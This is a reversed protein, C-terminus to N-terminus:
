KFVGLASFAYTPASSGTVATKIRIQSGLPRDYSKINAGMTGDTSQLPDHWVVVSLQPAGFNDGAKLLTTETTLQYGAPLIVNSPLGIDIENGTPVILGGLEHANYNRTLSVIQTGTTPLNLLTNTGDDLVLHVQRTDATADTVFAFRVSKLLWITNAPVTESIESGAAPDTGTISQITGPGDKAGDIIIIKKATNGDDATTFHINEIDTWSTCGVDYCTQIYFDIEDDADPTTITTVDLFIIATQGSARTPVPTNAASLAGSGSELTFTNQAGVGVAICLSVVVGTFITICRSTM